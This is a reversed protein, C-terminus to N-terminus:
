AGQALLESEMRRIGAILNRFSASRDNDLRLCRGIARSGSVKEYRNRTLTKLEHSPSGLADPARFKKSQQRSALGRLDLAEEVAKLDALYFSELETCAIRVLCEDGRGSSRCIDLLRQKVQVCKPHSDQDRMVIFRAERNQYVRIRRALQKELDQKGEFPILRFGVDKGLLRPLVSELMARASPEELLFVLEKM